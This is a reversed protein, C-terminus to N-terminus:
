RPTLQRALRVCVPPWTGPGQTGPRPRGHKAAGQPRYGVDDRQSIEANGASLLVVGLGPAELSEETAVVKWAYEGDDPVPLWAVAVDVEGSALGV